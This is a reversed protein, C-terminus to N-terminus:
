FDFAAQRDKEWLLNHLFRAAVEHETLGAGDGPRHPSMSLTDLRVLRRDQAALRRLEARSCLLALRANTVRFTAVVTM